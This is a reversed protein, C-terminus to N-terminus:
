AAVKFWPLLPAAVGAPSCAPCRPVRFVVHSTLSSAPSLALAHLVGPVGRDGALWRLVLLAAIGAAAADLAPASPLYAPAEEIRAQDAGYGLCARRRIAYCEGCATEGPLVLPGIAVIRGDFPLVQLWPVGSRGAASNWAALQAVEGAAPGVVVADARPPDGALAVPEVAVGAERLLRATREAIRGTGAVGVRRGALRERVAAPSPAGPSTAALFDATEDGDSAPGAALVGHGALVRLAAVVAEEAAVGLETVIEAVTREGDLLPLLAPLLREVARGSLVVARHGYELLLAGEREALRYWPKLLPKEPIEPV